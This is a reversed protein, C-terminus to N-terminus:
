IREERRELGFRRRALRRAGAVRQAGPELARQPAGRRRELLLARLEGGVRAGALLRLPQAPLALQQLAHDRRQPRARALRARAVERGALFHHDREVGRQRRARLEVLPEPARALGVLAGLARQALEAVDLRAGLRQRPELALQVRQERRAGLGLSQAREGLPRFHRAHERAERRLRGAARRALGGLRLRALAHPADAL